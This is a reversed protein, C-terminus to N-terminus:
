RPRGAKGLYQMMGGQGQDDLPPLKRGDIGDIGLMMWLPQMRNHKVYDKYAMDAANAANLVDGTNATADSTTAPARDFTMRDSVRSFLAARVCSLLAAEVDSTIVTRTLPNVSTTIYPKLECVFVVASIDPDVVQVMVGTTWPILAKQLVDNTESDLIAAIEAAETPVPCGYFAPGDGYEDKNVPYSKAIYFDPYSEALGAAMLADTLTTDTWVLEGYKTLRKLLNAKFTTIPTTVPVPLM